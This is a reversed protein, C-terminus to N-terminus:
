IMDAFRTEVRQFYTLGSVFMLLAVLTSALVMAGPQTDAGLLAWRYGEVVGVMPNLGYITRLFDDQILSSPYAIPTIFLWLQILFPAIHAVDRYMANIATMWLGAGLVTIIALLTLPPLWIINVTPAIGYVAMMGLLVVFAILFDVASSIVTSLPLMVRPFFVRRILDANSVLSLASKHLSTAFFSWPVLAAYAFIPYPIGDSPVAALKGFFLSFVIMTMLPQIVAWAAGLVTQKYRVKVDRLSLTYLLERYQWLLRPKLRFLGRGPEIVRYPTRPNEM